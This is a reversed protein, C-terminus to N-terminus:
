RKRRPTSGACGVLPMKGARGVRSLMSSSLRERLPAIHVFFDGDAREVAVEGLEHHLQVTRRGVGQLEGGFSDARLAALPVNANGDVVEGGAIQATIGELFREAGGADDAPGAFVLRENEVRMPPEIELAIPGVFLLEGVGDERPECGGRRVDIGPQQGLSEALIELIGRARHPLLARRLGRDPFVEADDGAAGARPLGVGHEDDKQQELRLEGRAACLGADREGRGGAFRRRAHLFGHLGREGGQGLRLRERILQWRVGGGNM